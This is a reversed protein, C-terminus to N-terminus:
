TVSSHWIRSRRGRAVGHANKMMERSKLSTTSSVTQLSTHWLRTPRPSHVSPRQLSFTTSTANSPSAFRYAQTSHRLSPSTQLILSPAAPPSISKLVCQQNNTNILTVNNHGPRNSTISPEQSFLSVQNYQQLPLTDLACARIECPIGKARLTSLSLYKNPQSSRKPKSM